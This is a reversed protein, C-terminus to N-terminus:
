NDSQKRIAKVFKVVEDCEWDASSINITVELGVGDAPINFSSLGTTYVEESVDSGNATGKEENNVSPDPTPGKNDVSRKGEDADAKGREDAESRDELLEDAFGDLDENVQLRTSYGRRGVTYNGLGAADLTKLFTTVVSELTRDKVDYGYAIRLERTLGDVLIAPEDNVEQIEDRAIGIYEKYASHERIADKFLSKEREPPLSGYGFQQGRTTAELVEEDGEIFGLHIGYNVNQEFATQKMDVGKLLEDREMQGERLAECLELLNEPSADYPPIDNTM